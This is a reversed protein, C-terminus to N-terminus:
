RSGLIVVVWISFVEYILLLITDVLFFDFYILRTLEILRVVMITKLGLLVTPFVLFLNAIVQVATLHSSKPASVCVSPAQTAFGCRRPHFLQSM